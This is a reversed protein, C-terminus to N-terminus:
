IPQHLLRLTALPKVKARALLVVAWIFSLVGVGSGCEPWPM